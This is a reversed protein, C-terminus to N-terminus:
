EQSSIQTYLGEVQSSHRAEAEHLMSIHKSEDVKNSETVFSKTGTMNFEMKAPETITFDTKGFTTQEISKFMEDNQKTFDEMKFDSQKYDVVKSDTV